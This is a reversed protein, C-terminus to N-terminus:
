ASNTIFAIRCRGLKDDNILVPDAKIDIAEAPVGNNLLFSKLERLSDVLDYMEAQSEDAYYAVFFTLRFNSNNSMLDALTRLQFFSGKTDLKNESDLYTFRLPITTKYGILMKTMMNYPDYWSGENAQAKAIASKLFYIQDAASNHMVILSVAGMEYHDFERPGILKDGPWGFQKEIEKLALINEGDARQMARYLSDRQSARAKKYVNRITQDRELMKILTNRLVTDISALYQPRVEKYMATIESMYAELTAAGHLHRLLAGHLFGLRLEEMAKQKNGLGMWCIGSYLYSTRILDISNKTRDFLKIAEKFKDKNMLATASDFKMDFDKFDRFTVQADVSDSLVAFAFAAVFQFYKNKKV